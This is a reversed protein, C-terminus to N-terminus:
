LVVLQLHTIIRHRPAFRVTYAGIRCLSPVHNFGSPRGIKIVM